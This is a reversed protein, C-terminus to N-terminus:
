AAEEGLASLAKGLAAAEAPSLTLHPASFETAPSLFELVVGPARRGGVSVTDRSVRLTEPRFSLAKTHLRAPGNRDTKITTSSM